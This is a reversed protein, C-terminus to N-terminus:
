NISDLEYNKILHNYAFLAARAGEGCAIVIQKMRGNNIDGTAFLGKTRTEYTEPDVIIEGKDNVDVLNKAFSADPAHGIQVFVGEAAISEDNYLVEEVFDKGKIEKVTAGTIINIGEKKAREQIEQSAFVKEGRELITVASAYKRLFLATEFGAEGGGIIVVRKKSFLPGDCTPCYSLGKGLFEKEGKINLRKPEAGTAVIVARSRFTKGEDTVVEFFEKKDLGVVKENKIEIDKSRLHKEFRDILEISSIKEFGPYNEIEVAKHVMQGGFSKTLLLSKIRQRASYIGATVGAPGGGIIILDYVM